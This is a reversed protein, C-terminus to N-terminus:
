KGKKRTNGGAKKTSEDLQGSYQAFTWQVLDGLQMIDLGGAVWRNIREDGFMLLAVKLTEADGTVTKGSEHWRMVELVVAAPLAPPLEEIAGFLKLRVPVRKQESWFHDFDKFRADAGATSEAVAGTGPKNEAVAM